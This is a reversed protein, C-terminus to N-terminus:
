NQRAICSQHFLSLQHDIATIARWRARTHGAAAPDWHVHMICALSLRGAGFAEQEETLPAFTPAPMAGDCGYGDDVVLGYRGARAATSRRAYLETTHAIHPGWM